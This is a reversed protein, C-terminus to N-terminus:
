FFIEPIFIFVIHRIMVDAQQISGDSFNDGESKKKYGKRKEHIM